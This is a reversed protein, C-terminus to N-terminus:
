KDSARILHELAESRGCPFPSDLWSIDIEPIMSRLVPSVEAYVLDTANFLVAIEKV